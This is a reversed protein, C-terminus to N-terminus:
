MKRTFLEIYSVNCLLSKKLFFCFGTVSPNYKKKWRRIHESIFLFCWFYCSKKLDLPYNKIM